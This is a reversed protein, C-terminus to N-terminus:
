QICEHKIDEWKYLTQVEFGHRKAEDLFNFVSTLDKRCEERDTPHETSDRTIEYLSDLTNCVYGVVLQFDTRKM